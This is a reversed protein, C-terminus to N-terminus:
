HGHGAHPDPRGAHIALLEVDFVLMGAPAGPRTPKDGYALEAPIWFRMTEGEVMLQLGEGWGKIVAGLPFTTPEGKPISSDFMKGNTTWGTYNVTVRDARTPHKTGKGKKLSRYALGSATKKATKPPARVDPPAKPPKPTKLIELLEIEFTLQGAPGFGPKDGYALKSPIWVRLKQGEVMLKLAETWGPIVQGVGFTAPANKAVSSDFMKGDKTWGSYHVKVRDEQKPKKTGKGKELVVYAIGSRTKKATKPPAAVDKPAEIAKPQPAVAQAVASAVGKPREKLKNRLASGMPPPGEAVRAPKKEVPEPKPQEECGVLVASLALAICFTRM